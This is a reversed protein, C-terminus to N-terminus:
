TGCPRHEDSNDGCHDRGDCEYQRSICLGNDCEFELDTNCATFGAVSLSIFAYCDASLNFHKLAHIHLYM